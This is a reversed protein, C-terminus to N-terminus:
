AGQMGYKWNSKDTSSSGMIMSTSGSNKVVTVPANTIGGGGGAMQAAELPPITKRKSFDDGLPTIVEPGHLIAPVTKGEPIFGGKNLEAGYGKLLNKLKERDKEAFDEDTLLNSLQGLMGQRGKGEEKSEILSKMKDFDIEDKSLLDKDVIGLKELDETLKANKGGFIFDYLADPMLQKAMAKFDLNFLNELFKLVPDIVKEKIWDSMSFKPGIVDGEAGFINKAVWNIAPKIAIDFLWGVIDAAKGFLGALGALMKEPNLTYFGELFKMADGFADKIFGTISFNYWDAGEVKKEDFGFLGMVKKILWKISDEALKVLDFVFFNVIAQIGASLGAVTKDWLSGEESQFADWFAMVAEYGAILWGIPGFFRLMKTGIKGLFKGIATIVKNNKISELATAIKGGEKANGFFTGLWTFVGRLKSGEGFWRQFRASEKITKLHTAIKGEGGFLSGIWRFVARIKSNEGFWKQFTATEKLKVLHKGIFGEKGFGSGIWKIVSWIAGGATFMAKFAVGWLFQLLLGIPGGFGFWGKLLNVTAKLVWFSTGIRTLVVWIGDLVAIAADWEIGLKEVWGKVIKVTEEWDQSSLFKFLGWLALLGLGKLLLDLMNGAFKQVSKLKAKGFEVAAGAALKGLKAAREQFKKGWAFHMLLKKWRSKEDKEADEDADGSDEAEEGIKKLALIAELQLQNAKQFETKSESDAANAIMLQQTIATLSPKLEKLLESQEIQKERTAQEDAM